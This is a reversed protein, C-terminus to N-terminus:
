LKPRTFQDNRKTINDVLVNLPVKKRLNEDYAVYDTCRLKRIEELEYITEEIPPCEGNVRYHSFIDRYEQIINGIRSM